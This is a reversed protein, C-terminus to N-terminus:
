LIVTNHVDYSALDQTGKATAVPEARVPLIRMCTGALDPAAQLATVYQVLIADLDLQAPRLAQTPVVLRVSVAATTLGDYADDSFTVAFTGVLACPPNWQDALWPNVRLNGAELATALGDRVAALDFTRCHLQAFTV